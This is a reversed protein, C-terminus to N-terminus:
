RPVSPETDREKEEVLEPPNLLYAAAEREQALRVVDERRFLRTGTSTKLAKLRGSRELVRVMESSVQLVKAAAATLLFDSDM